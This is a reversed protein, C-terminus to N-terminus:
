FATCEGHLFTRYEASELSTRLVLHELKAGLEMRGETQRTLIHDLLKICVSALNEAM